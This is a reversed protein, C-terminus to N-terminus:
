NTMYRKSNRLIQYLECLGKNQGRLHSPKKVLASSSLDKYLVSDEEIAQGM